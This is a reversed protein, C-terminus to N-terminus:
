AFRRALFYNVEGARSRKSVQWQAPWQIDQPSKDTELYVLAEPSVIKTELLAELCQNELNDSYPPDLFILDFAAADQLTSNRLWTLADAIHIEYDEAKLKYLNDEMAKAVSSNSEVFVVSDAGRSLAEIGCAGSGAFLDLCRKGMIEFQLWNFLTERVRNATPRLGDVDPFSIQRGRWQGAIIRLQNRQKDVM